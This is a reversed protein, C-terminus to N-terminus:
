NVRQEITIQEVEVRRNPELCEILAPRKKQSCVVVPDAKGKGVASLRNAAVGKGVLYDKVANARRESLKQNYKESGIRDTYGTVVVNDVQTNKNLADAIEDLKPQPMRLESKDFAFLETSSLSIKEFRPAPAPPPPVPTEAVVAPAPEPQAVAVAPARSKDFAYNFGITLYNNNSRDIAFDADHLYGHVRRVDAQLSWQDNLSVQFGIGANLYPAYGSSKGLDSSVRDEQYGLGVLVFPRFQKRSFLYLADAGLLNQQYTVGANRSHAYTTGLQIDWSESIPKGFRLGAGEGNKDIGFGADPDLVNVSPAIYWSPNYDTAQAFAVGSSAYCLIAAAISIKNLKNM